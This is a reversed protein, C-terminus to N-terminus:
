SSTEEILRFRTTRKTRTRGRRELRVRRSVGFTWALYGAHTNRRDLTRAPSSMNSQWFCFCFSSKGSLRWRRITGDLSASIIWPEVCTNGENDVSKRRWFRIATVDHWHADIVKILEPAEPNAVDFVRLVDGAGTVLYPEAFDTSTLPLISRIATPHSISLSPMKM